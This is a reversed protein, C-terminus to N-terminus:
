LLSSGRGATIAAYGTKAGLTDLVSGGGVASPSKGLTPLVTKKGRHLSGKHHYPSCRNANIRKPSQLEISEKEGRAVRHGGRGGWVPTEEKKPYLRIMKPSFTGGRETFPVRKKETGRSTGTSGGGGLDRNRPIELHGRDSTASKRGKGRTAFLESKERSMELSAFSV